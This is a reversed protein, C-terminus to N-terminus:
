EIVLHTEQTATAKATLDTATVQLVYRGPPLSNLALESWYPLRALDKTTDTPVRTKAVTMVARNNLLVRVQIEIVPPTPSQAANYVYTQFRLVSMRSFRHDVDVGISQPSASLKTGGAEAKREALFLTSMGFTGKSFDPVEIWQQAGGTRGSSRERLAVRVQYLGPQVRLRQHWVVPQNQTSADSVVTLMQKFTVILGRDDIAAGIVDIESKKANKDALQLDARDIQMSANLVLGQDPSNMYGVSLATPITRRPYLAGLTTLLAVEPTEAVANTSTSKEAKGSNSKDAHAYYNRRLRVRFDPHDKVSVRIRAKGSRQEETDPRWALLYYSSTEDIAQQFADTFSNSNLIARGGTDDALIRLPERMASSELSPMRASTGSAMGDPFANRGADVEPDSFTGRADMTYVIIGAPAAVSGVQHLMEMVYTNRSDAIFGDSILFVLKRGPLSASSQMLSLLVSLTDNTAARSQSNIQHTRNKVMNVALQSLGRNDGGKTGLLQYENITSSVLYNFLDRDGHDTIQNAQYESISTKGAFTETNRKYNLRNIAARLVAKNDTLQQLFGIQGSASVIALQDNPSAQKEVFDSLATRTRTLSSESLHLDDLFFFVIRRNDTAGSIPSNLDSSKVPGALAPALQSAETRSGSIVRELISIPQAKGDVSLEFQEPRLGEVFRGQKDFVMLDTQVLETKIRLVDDDQSAPKNPSNQQGTVAQFNVVLTIVTALWLARSNMNTLQYV